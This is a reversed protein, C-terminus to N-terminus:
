FTTRCYIKIKAQNVMHEIKKDRKATCCLQKLAATDLLENNEVYDACMVLDNSAVLDLLQYMTNGTKCQELHNYSKVKCYKKSTWLPGQHVSICHFKCVEKTYNGIDKNNLIILFRRALLLRM